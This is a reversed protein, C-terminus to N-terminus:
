NRGSDYVDAALKRLLELDERYAENGGPIELIMPVNGLDPDHLLTRFGELGIAGQGIRAHRDVRSGLERKSDNLHFVKLKELGIIKDFKAKTKEWARRSRIDYGAAFVHCTDLCVAIREGLGSRDIIYKLHEFRYGLNTGQGATTELLVITKEVGSRRYCKKINSAIRELGAAEGEGLHSGPHMVLFPIRLLECRHLEDTFAEISRQLTPQAPNALNILYSDHVTVPRVGTEEQAKRFKVVEETELPKSKWQMQNKSFIQVVECGIEKGTYLANQLGGAISTHAGLPPSEPSNPHPTKM